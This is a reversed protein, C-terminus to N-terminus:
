NFNVTSTIEKYGIIKYKFFISQSIKREREFEIVRNQTKKKITFSFQFTLITESIRINENKYIEISKTKIKSEFSKKLNSYCDQISIFAVHIDVDNWYYSCSFM